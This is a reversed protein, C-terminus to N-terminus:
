IIKKVKFVFIDNQTPSMGIFQFQLDSYDTNIIIIKNYCLIHFKYFLEDKRINFNFEKEGYCILYLLFQESTIINSVINKMQKIAEEQIAEMKAKIEYVMNYKQTPCSNCM